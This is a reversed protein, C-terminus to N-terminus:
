VSFSLSNTQGTAADAYVLSLTVTGDTGAVTSVTPAPSTAVGAELKMQALTVGNIAAPAGPQGVFQGLGAGYTLQWIYDGANTLLRRLVRQQTLVAGDALALDGTPGVALDGGYQLALDAM